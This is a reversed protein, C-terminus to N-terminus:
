LPITRDDDPFARTPSAPLARRRRRLFLILGAAIILVGLGSAGTAAYAVPVTQSTDAAPAAAPSADAAAPSSTAPSASASPTM